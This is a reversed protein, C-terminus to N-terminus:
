NTRRELAEALAQLGSSSCIQLTNLADLLGQLDEQSTSSIYVGHKSGRYRLKLGIGGPIWPDVCVNSSTIDQVNIELDTVESSNIEVTKLHYADLTLSRPRWQQMQDATENTEDYVYVLKSSRLFPLPLFPQVTKIAKQFVDSAPNLAFALLVYQAAHAVQVEGAAKGTRAAGGEGDVISCYQYMVSGMNYSCRALVKRDVGSDQSRRLAQRFRSMALSYLQKRTSTAGDNGYYKALDCIVLGWNNLAQVNDEQMSVVGSYKLCSAVAYELQEGNGGTGDSGALRALDGLVVAWSFLIKGLTANSCNAVIGLDHAEKYLAVTSELLDKLVPLHGELFSAVNEVSYYVDQLRSGFSIVTEVEVASPVAAGGYTKFRAYAQQAEVAREGLAPDNKNLYELLTAPLSWYYVGNNLTAFNRREKGTHSSSAAGDVSQERRTALQLEKELQTAVSVGEEDAIGGDTQPFDVPFRLPSSGLLATARALASSSPSAM